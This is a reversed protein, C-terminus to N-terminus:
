FRSGATYIRQLDARLETEGDEETDDLWLESYGIVQGIYNRLDHRERSPM